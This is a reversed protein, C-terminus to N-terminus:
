PPNEATAVNDVARIVLKTNVFMLVVGALFFVAFWPTAWFSPSCVWWSPRLRRSSGPGSSVPRPCRSLVVDLRPVTTSM